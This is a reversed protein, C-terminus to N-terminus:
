APVELRQLGGGARGELGWGRCDAVRRNGRPACDGVCPRGPAGVAPGPDGLLPRPPWRRDRLGLLYRQRRDDIPRGHVALRMPISYATQDDERVISKWWETALREGAYCLGVILLLTPQGNELDTFLALALAALLGLAISRVFSSPRFGEFPSDKFGGWTAAHLGTLLGILAISLTNM